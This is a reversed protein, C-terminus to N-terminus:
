DFVDGVLHLVVTAFGVLSFKSAEALFVADGEVFAIRPVSGFGEGWAAPTSSWLSPDRLAGQFVQGVLMWVGVPNQM